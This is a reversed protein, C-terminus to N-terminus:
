LHQLTLVTVINSSNFRIPYWYAVSASKRDTHIIHHNWFFFRSQEQLGLIFWHFWYVADPHTSWLHHVSCGPSQYKPLSWSRIASLTRRSVLSISSSLPLRFTLEIKMIASESLALLLHLLQCSAPISPLVMPSDNFSWNLNEHLVSHEPINWKWEHLAFLVQPCPESFRWSLNDWRLQRVDGLICNDQFMITLCQVSNFHGRQDFGSFDNFLKLYTRPLTQKFIQHIRIIVVVDKNFRTLFDCFWDLLDNVIWPNFLDSDTRDKGAGVFASNTFRNRFPSPELFSTEKTFCDSHNCSLTNPFRASLQRHSREVNTSCCASESFLISPFCIEGTFQTKLGSLPEPHELFSPQERGAHLLSWQRYHCPGSFVRGIPVAM